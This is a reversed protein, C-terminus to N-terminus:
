TSEEHRVEDHQEHAANRQQAHLEGDALVGALHTAM